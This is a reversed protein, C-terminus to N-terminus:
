NIYIQRRFQSWVKLFIVFLARIHEDKLIKFTAGFALIQDSMGTWILPFPVCLLQVGEGSITQLDKIGRRRRRRGFGELLRSCVESKQKDLVQQYIERSPPPGSVGLWLRLKAGLVYWLM